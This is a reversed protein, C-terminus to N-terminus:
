FAKKELVAIFFDLGMKKLEVLGTPSSTVSLVVRTVVLVFLPSLVVCRMNDHSTNKVIMLATKM